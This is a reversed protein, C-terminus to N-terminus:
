QSASSLTTSASAPAPPKGMSILTYQAIMQGTLGDDTPTITVEFTKTPDPKSGTAYYAVTAISDGDKWQAVMVTGFYQFAYHWQGNVLQRKAGGDGMYIGSQALQAPAWSFFGGSSASATKDGTDPPAQTWDLKDLSQTMALVDQWNKMGPPLPMKRIQADTLNAFQKYRRLAQFIKHDPDLTPKPRPPPTPSPHPKVAVKVIRKKKRPFHISGQKPLSRVPQIKPQLRAAELLMLPPPPPPTSARGGGPLLFLGLVLAHIALSAGFATARM